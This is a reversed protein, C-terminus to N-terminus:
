NAPSIATLYPYKGNKSGISWYDYSGNTDNVFDWNTFTAQTQMQSTDRANGYNSSQIGSTTSDFFLLGPTGLLYSGILADNVTSYNDFVTYCFTVSGTDFLGVIGGVSASGSIIGAVNAYYCNNLIGNHNYGVLGGVSQVGTIESGTAYSIRIVPSASAYESAGVLGGVFITGSIDGTAYCYEITGNLNHGVLRRYM